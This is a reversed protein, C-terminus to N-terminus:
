SATNGRQKFRATAPSTRQARLRRRAEDLDLTGPAPDAAVFIEEEPQGDEDSEEGADIPDPDSEEEDMSPSSVQGLVSVAINKVTKIFFARISGSPLKDTAGDLAYYFRSKGIRELRAESTDAFRNLFAKAAGNLRRQLTPSPTILSSNILTSMKEKLDQLQEKPVKITLIINPNTPETM